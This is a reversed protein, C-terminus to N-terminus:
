LVQYVRYSVWKFSPGVEGVGVAITRNLWSYQESGTEFRPTVRFYYHSPEISEGALLRDRVEPSAIFYGPYAIYLLHEDDLRVTVRADLEAVGDVRMCPWDTTGPLLEGAIAPGVLRGGTAALIQRTGRPTNELVLPPKLIVTMQFVFQCNLPTEQAKSRAVM